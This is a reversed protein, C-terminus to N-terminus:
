TVLYYTTAPTAKGDADQYAYDSRRLGNVFLAAPVTGSDKVKDLYARMQDRIGTSGDTVVLRENNATVVRLVAFESGYDGAVFKCGVIIFQVDVLKNKDPLLTFGDGLLDAANAVGQMKALDAFTVERLDNAADFSMTGTADFRTEVALEDTM